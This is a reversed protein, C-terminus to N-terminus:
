QEAKTAGRALVSERLSALFAQSWAESEAVDWVLISSGIIRGVPDEIL